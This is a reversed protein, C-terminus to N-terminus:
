RTRPTTRARRSRGRLAQKYTRKFHRLSEPGVHHPHRHVQGETERGARGKPEIRPLVAGRRPDRGARRPHGRGRAMHEGPGEGAKGKGDARARAAGGLPRRAEGDGQGVGGQQKDGWKFRPLDVQPLPISVKDGGKKAIMEGQSIYEQRRRPRLDVRRLQARRHGLGRQLRLEQDAAAQRHRDQGPDRPRRREVGPEHAQDLGEPGRVAQSSRRTCGSTPRTTSPRARSRSAGIYNMIERRFDDKRSEAIDIKEEISRMMREDPEEDQGTYPNKVKERQTYAKINDIYNACLKQIADEDASIARQVENKVIDEYEQKV